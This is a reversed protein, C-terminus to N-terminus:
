SASCCPLSGLTEAASNGRRIEEQIQLSVQAASQAGRCFLSAAVEKIRSVQTQLGYAPDDVRRRIHESQM